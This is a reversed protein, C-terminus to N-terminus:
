SKKMKKSKLMKKFLKKKMKLNKISIRRLQNEKNRFMKSNKHKIIKYIPKKKTSILIM